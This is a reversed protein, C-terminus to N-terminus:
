LDRLFPSFSRKMQKVLEQSRLFILSFKREQFGAIVSPIGESQFFSFLPIEKEFEKGEPFFAFNRAKESSSFSKWDSSFSPSLLFTCEIESLDGLFSVWNKSSANLRSYEPLWVFYILYRSNVEIFANAVFLQSFFLESAFPFYECFIFIKKKGKGLSVWYVPSSSSETYFEQVAYGMNQKGLFNKLFKARNEEERPFNDFVNKWFSADEQAWSMKGSKSSPSSLFLPSFSVFCVMLALLLPFLSFLFKWYTFKM